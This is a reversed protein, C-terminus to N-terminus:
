GLYKSGEAECWVLGLIYIDMKSDMVTKVVQGVTM